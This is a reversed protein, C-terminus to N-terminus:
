NGELAAVRSTLSEVERLLYLINGANEGIQESIGELDDPTVFQESLYPLLWSSLNSMTLWAPFGTTGAVSVVSRETPASMSELGTGVLNAYVPQRATYSTERGTGGSFVPLLGPGSMVVWDYSTILTTAGNRVLLVTVSYNAKLEGREIHRRIATNSIGHTLWVGGLGNVNLTPSNVNGSKVHPIFTIQTGVLDELSTASIEPISLTYASGTGETTYVPYPYGGGGGSAEENKSFSMEHLSSGTSGIPAITAHFVYVEAYTQAPDRVPQVNVNHAFVTPAHWNWSSNEIHNQWHISMMGGPAGLGNVSYVVLMDGTKLDDTTRLEEYRTHVYADEGWADDHVGFFVRGGASPAPLHSSLQTALNPMTLWAPDASSNAMSVVSLESPAPMSRTLTSTSTSLDGTPAIMPTRNTYPPAVDAIYCQPFVTGSLSVPKIEATVISNAVLRGATIYSGEASTTPLGGFTISMQGLGNINIQANGSNTAHVKFSFRKGYLDELSGTFEPINLYYFYAYGTTTYIPWDGGGGGSVKDDVCAVVSDWLERLGNEDLYSAM